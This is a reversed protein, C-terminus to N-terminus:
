GGRPLTFGFRAGEDPRGEAWVRGGHRVVIRQVIALGVGTGPFEDERHLRQFVTFLRDAYRMDFGAGNDSVVYEAEGEREAGSITVRPAPNKASYKLANGVLNMWVQTLLALDGQAAPLTRVEVQAAPHEAGLEQAVQRALSTMDLASRDLTQRSLRSFALLDEILRDMRAAARRVVGLLRLGEADLGAAHDEVLMRSFGEVARLPARLDHSVSYAFSELEKYASQMEATRERVRAELEGAQLSVRQYLRAQHVVLALQTAIESAAALQAAPFHALPGGFSLAGLLEGAAIMPVVMYYRVGSELLASRDKGAPLAATDVRQPVGRQLAAVDGMFALPYRVGPGVHTRHRGAAALWQAEGAGLDILNVVARAAGLVERIPQIAAGAIAEPSKAAVLALDIEHLIQLRRGHRGHAEALRAYLLGNELLMVLLVFSGALLGYIRGAYWGLDYRGANLV